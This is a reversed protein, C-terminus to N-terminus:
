NMTHFKATYKCIYIHTYLLPRIHKHPHSYTCLFLIMNDNKKNRIIKNLDNTIRHAKAIDKIPSLKFRNSNTKDWRKKETYYCIVENLYLPNREMFM